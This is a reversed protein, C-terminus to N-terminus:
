SFTPPDEFKKRAIREYLGEGSFLLLRKPWELSFKRYVLSLFHFLVLLTFVNSYLGLESEVLFHWSQLNKIQKRFLTSIDNFRLSRLLGRFSSLLELILWNNGFPTCFRTRFGLNRTLILYIICLSPAASSPVALLAWYVEFPLRSMNQFTLLKKKFSIWCFNPMWIKQRFFFTEVSFNLAKSIEMRNTCPINTPLQILGKTM